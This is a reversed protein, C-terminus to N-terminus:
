DGATEPMATVKSTMVPTGCAMAELVPLAFGEYLSPFLLAVAGRYLSPMDAEPVMGAFHVRGVLHNARIQEETRATPDGTFVLRMERPLKAKAFSDVIRLENKHRKRNSVCLVYP